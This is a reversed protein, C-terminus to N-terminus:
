SNVRKRRKAKLTEKNAEDMKEIAITFAIASIDKIHKHLFPLAQKPYVTYLERLTWGVGKQVYYEKDKLLPEVLAVIQEFPLYEQKTRSYYLLSVVSQRRKWLDQDKNWRALQNYVEKPYSELVKTNIKALADCLGWDNIDNQWSASTEWITKHLTKHKVFTELFLYAHFQPRFANTTKWVHHWLPLQTEFPEKSFYFGQRFAARHAPIPADTAAIKATIEEVQKKFEKKAPM